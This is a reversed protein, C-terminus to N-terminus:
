HIKRKLTSSVHSALFFDEEILISEVVVQREQETLLEGTSVPNKKKKQNSCSHVTLFNNM